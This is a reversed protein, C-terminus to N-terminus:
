AIPPSRLLAFIRKGLPLKSNRIELITSALQRRSDEYQEKLAVLIKENGPGEVEARIYRRQEHWNNVLGELKTYLALAIKSKRQRKKLDAIEKQVLDTPRRNAAQIFPSLINWASDPTREYRVIESGEDILTKWFTAKLQKEREVKEGVKETGQHADWM